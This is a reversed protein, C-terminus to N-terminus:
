LDAVSQGRADVAVVNLKVLPASPPGQANPRALAFWATGATVLLGALVRNSMGWKRKITLGLFGRCYRAEGKFNKRSKSALLTVSRAKTVLAQSRSLTRGSSSHRTVSFRNPLTPPAAM